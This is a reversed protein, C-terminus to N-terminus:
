CQIERRLLALTKNQRKKKQTEKGGISLISGLAQQAVGGFGEPNELKGRLNM